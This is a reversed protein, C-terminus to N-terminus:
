LHVAQVDGWRRDLYEIVLRRHCFDATPESCLLVTRPSFLDRSIECEVKRESLLTLFAVEYQEWTLQDTRYAKLLERTPALLPQHFYDAGVMQRLFYTLDRQKAFGSLQSTNNVRVDVLREIRRQRLSEFFNEAPKKTFGITYIEM